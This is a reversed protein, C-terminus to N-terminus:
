RFVWQRFNISYGCISRLPIIQIDNKLCEKVLIAGPDSITPTGADSILSILNGDKLLKIIKTTNQTENFKHNSILKKDINYKKLLIM